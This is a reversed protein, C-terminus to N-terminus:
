TAQVKEQSRNKSGGRRKKERGAREREEKEEEEGGKELKHVAGRQGASFRACAFSRKM